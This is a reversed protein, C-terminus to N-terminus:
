LVVENSSQNYRQMDERLAQNFDKGADVQGAPPTEPLRTMVQDAQFTLYELTSTKQINGVRQTVKMVRGDENYEMQVQMTVSLKLLDLEAPDIRLQLQNHPQQQRVRGYRALKRMLEDSMATNFRATNGLLAAAQTLEVHGESAPFYALLREGQQELIFQTRFPSEV